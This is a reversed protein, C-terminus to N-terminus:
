VRTNWSISRRWKLACITMAQGKVFQQSDISLNMTCEIEKSLFEVKVNSPFLNTLDLLISTPAYHEDGNPEDVNADINELVMYLQPLVVKNWKIFGKSHKNQQNTYFGIHNHSHIM